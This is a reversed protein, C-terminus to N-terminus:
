WAAQTVFSDLVLYLWRDGPGKGPGDNGRGGTQLWSTGRLVQRRLM